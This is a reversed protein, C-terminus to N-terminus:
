DHHDGGYNGRVKNEAFLPRRIMLWWPARAYTDKVAQYSLKGTLSLQSVGFSRLNLMHILICSLGLVMGYLGFTSSLVLLFLRVYIVSANMKPVLLSTIGTLGIIIIMPAAVLKAEVGAQGIVLAGVISFAQGINSPMRVGTERIIDFVLLMVVAELAAPLPVSQREATISIFLQLPMMEHHFAVIAIYFGPVSITLFYGLIRIMRSYSMYYFNLYYDESSQFNEIFLYPVTMVTPTGDVFVAVRGEMIKGVVVDPRETYGNARFPSWRNDRVLETIYNTDLVADIDIKALRRYVEALIDQNVIGDIYCVAVKTKTRRGLTLCKVKLDATRVKRRVLSLNMLLAETFGERPGSLNRENEPESIARVNFCKTNLIVAKAAGDVFLITDGYTVAEVIERFSETAAMENIQLIETMVTEVPDAGKWSVTSLLLPKILNEDIIANNVVGDTYVICYKIKKDHINDIYKKRMIDVDAFLEDIIAINEALSATLVNKTLPQNLDAVKADIKEQKKRRKFLGTM